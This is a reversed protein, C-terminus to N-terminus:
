NRHNVRPAVMRRDYLELREILLIAPPDELLLWMRDGVDDVKSSRGVPLITRNIRVAAAARVSHRQAVHIVNM